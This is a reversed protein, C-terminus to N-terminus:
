RASETMEIMRKCLPNSPDSMDDLITFHNSGQIELYECEYSKQRLSAVFDKTQRQFESNDTTGCALLMPVRRRLPHLMPSNRMTSDVDLRVDNNTSSLRIPELDYLGSIGIASKIVDDPTRDFESWDTELARMAIQAGASHGYVSIRNPDGGFIRASRYAWSVSARAQRIIEDISVSPCLDYNVVLLTVGAQVFPEALFSYNAKDQARWSGGHFFMQVPAKNQSAFFIDLTEGGSDGYPVDLACHLKERAKWSATRRKEQLEAANPIGSAPNYEKELAAKDFTRYIANM